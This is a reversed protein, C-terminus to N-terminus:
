MTCFAIFFQLLPNNKEYFTNFDQWKYFSLVIAILRFSKLLLSKQPWKRDNFLKKLLINLVNM